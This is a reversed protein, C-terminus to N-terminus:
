DDADEQLAFVAVAAAAAVNLSDIGHSMPIIVRADASEITRRSLGAGETGMVLATKRHGARAFERVSMADDRLALAATTFGHERLLDIGGPWPEIRVWPVSFVTGMSVRISRRYLPDACRPSILVADAGLAAASRFIAGVNTHDVIDELVVVTRAWELITKLAPQPKREMAALAGRHLHFGVINELEAPTGLIIPADSSALQPALDALWNPRLLFSRASYGAALARTVIKSSEAIFLGEAPERKSRLQVDTLDTYDALLTGSAQSSRIVRAEDIGHIRLIQQIQADDIDRKAPTNM